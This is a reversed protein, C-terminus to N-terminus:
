QSIKKESNRSINLIKSFFDFALALHAENNWQIMLCHFGEYVSSSKIIWTNQLFPNFNDLTEFIYMWIFPM